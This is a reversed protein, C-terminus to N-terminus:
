NLIVELKERRILDSVEQNLEPVRLIFENALVEGIPQNYYWLLPRGKKTLPKTIGFERNLSFGTSGEQKLTEMGIEFDFHTPAYASELVTEDLFNNIAGLRM